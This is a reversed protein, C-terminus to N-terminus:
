KLNPKTTIPGTLHVGTKEFRRCPVSKERPLDSM